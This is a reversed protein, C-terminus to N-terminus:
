SRREQQRAVFCVLCGYLHPPDHAVVPEVAAERQLRQEREAIQHRRQAFRQRLRGNRTGKFRSAM